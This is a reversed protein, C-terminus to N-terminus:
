KKKFGSPIQLVRAVSQSRTAKCDLKPYHAGLEHGPNPANKDFSGSECEESSKQLSVM